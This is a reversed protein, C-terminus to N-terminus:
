RKRRKTAKGPSRPATATGTDEPPDTIRRLLRIDAVGVSPQAYADKWWKAAAWLHEPADYEDMAGPSTEIGAQALAWRVFAAGPHPYGDVLPNPRRAPDFLFPQWGAIMEWLDYRARIAKPNRAAEMVRAIREAPSTGTETEELAFGIVAVNPYVDVDAYREASSTRVGSNEPQRPDADVVPCELIEDGKGTFLFIHSFWSPLRDFRLFSQAWRIAMSAPDKAGVLGVWITHDTDDITGAFDFMGRVPVFTEKTPRGDSIRM